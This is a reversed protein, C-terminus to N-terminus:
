DLEYDVVKYGLETLKPKLTKADGVVVMLMEDVNLHKAALANMQEHSINALIDSRTKVFEPTLDHELIQALFGLKAGPTEYKLAEKQNIANRTFSLEEATLGNQQYSKIENVMEVISKDTVDARVSASATFGGALTDGWFGSSAGYTYGKDERLNLNLRSNFNGGLAFNMLKTQYFEGSIDMALGRKGIRISSQAADDKNVLYIVTQKDLPMSAMADLEPGKGQWSNFRKLQENVKEQPLDSAVILQSNAPLFHKKYFAKLDAVTMSKLSALNGQKPSGSIGDGLMLRKYAVAGLYEPKKKNNHISQLMQQQLRKFDSEAFKPEFMREKLIDLAADLNKTLTSVSININREGAVISISAGLKELRQSMQETSHRLTSEGMMAALFSATGSKEISEYLHGAPVKLLLSTTPTELSQTGLISIGNAMKDKWFPPVDVSASAGVKPKVSRDFTKKAIRLTLDDATTTSQGDLKVTKPTFTDAHAIQDLKGNPVISMIVAYKDKIYQKFVRMVDAKTVNNYRAIDDAIYNPNGTFTENEALMSVKGAVSQLGFVFGAEMAAKVKILDDDNVGRQEFEVLSQRIIKEIDALSKGSAPHPLALLNFRCALETCPHNVQAQVAIQNKVLNKYLLSTKGGGLIQSLIDLPAEDPHRGTVTPYSMYVLPLHVNDEMSIYRDKDLVVPEVQAKEVEPGRPIPSFYKSALKLAQEPEVDGGITLTANNPGYWRLFFAKLDNVNVRNLDAMYGIIPWSYPHGYPYLAQNVRENLRGYPQNDVRQGRENKVTERQVEFKSQTVADLLFGMRDSELWLMTELNNAPVTQYYNTRDFNTTGNMTGGAETILKFHQEDAVHESGQFMMHEFFHAFGSKGLEERASGVHYTVDVHVLPDSHDQHVIVTLGNDLQYKSYPINIQGSKADVQEIFTVGPVQWNQKANASQAAQTSPNALQASDAKPTQTAAATNDDAPTCAGIALCVSSAALLNLAQQKM